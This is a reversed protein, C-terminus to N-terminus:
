AGGPRTRWPRQRLDFSIGVFLSPVVVLMNGLVLVSLDHVLTDGLLLGLPVLDALATGGAHVLLNYM